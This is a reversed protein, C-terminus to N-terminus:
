DENALFDIYLEVEEEVNAVNPVSPIELGYDARLVVASATGALQVGGSLATANVTFVAPQTIDRITLDGSVTFSVEEGIVASAPLGDVSTPTFTIFEHSGTDLIQNQINQCIHGQM